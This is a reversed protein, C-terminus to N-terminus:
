GWVMRLRWWWSAWRQVWAPQSVRCFGLAAVPAHNPSQSFFPPGFSLPFLVLSSRDFDPIIVVSIASDTLRKRVMKWWWYIILEHWVQGSLKDNKRLSRLKWFCDAPKIWSQAGLIGWLAFRSTSVTLLGESVRTGVQLEWAGGDVRNSKVGYFDPVMLVADFNGFAIVSVSMLLRLTFLPNCAWYNIVIVV